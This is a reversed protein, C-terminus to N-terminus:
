CNWKNWSWRNPWKEEDDDMSHIVHERGEADVAVMDWTKPDRENADNASRLAYAELILPKDKVKLEITVKGSSQFNAKATGFRNDAEKSNDLLYIAEEGCHCGKDASIELRDYDVSDGM